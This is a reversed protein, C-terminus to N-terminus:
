RPRERRRERACGHRIAPHPGVDDPLGAGEVDVHVTPGIRLNRTPSSRPRWGKERRITGLHQQRESAKPYANETGGAGAPAATQPGNLEPVVLSANPLLTTAAAMSKISTKASLRKTRGGAPIKTFHARNLSM